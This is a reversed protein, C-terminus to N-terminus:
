TDSLITKAKEFRTGRDTFNYCSWFSPIVEKLINLDYVLPEEGRLMRTMRLLSLFGKLHKVIHLRSQNLIIDIKAPNKEKYM